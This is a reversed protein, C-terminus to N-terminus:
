DLMASTKFFLLLRWSHMFLGVLGDALWSPAALLFWGQWRKWGPSRAKLGSLFYVETTSATHHKTVAALTFEYIAWVHFLGFAWCSWFPYAFQMVNMCRFIVYSYFLVISIYSM